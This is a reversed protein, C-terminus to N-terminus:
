KSCINGKDTFFIILDKSAYCYVVGLKLYISDWVELWIVSRIIICGETKTDGVLLYIICLLYITVSM